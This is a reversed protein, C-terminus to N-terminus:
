GKIYVFDFGAFSHLIQYCKQCMVKDYFVLQKLKGSMNGLWGVARGDVNDMSVVRFLGRKASNNGSIIM